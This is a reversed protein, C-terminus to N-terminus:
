VPLVKCFSTISASYDGVGWLYRGEDDILGYSIVKTAGSYRISKDIVTFYHEYYHGQGIKFIGERTKVNSLLKLRDGIDFEINHNIGNPIFAM